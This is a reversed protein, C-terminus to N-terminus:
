FMVKSNMGKPSITGLVHVWTTEKLLMKLNNSVNDILMFFFDQVSHGPSNSNNHDIFLRRM